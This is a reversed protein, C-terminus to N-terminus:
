ESGAVNAQPLINSGCLEIQWSPADNFSHAQASFITSFLLSHSILVYSLAASQIVSHKLSIKFYFLSDSTTPM